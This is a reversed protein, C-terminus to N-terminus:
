NWEPAVPRKQPMDVATMIAPLSPIETLSASGRFRPRPRRSRASLRENVAGGGSGGYIAIVVLTALQTSQPNSRRPRNTPSTHRSCSSLSRELVLTAKPM